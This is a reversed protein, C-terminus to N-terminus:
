HLYQYADSSQTLSRSNKLARRMLILLLLIEISYAEQEKGFPCITGGVM